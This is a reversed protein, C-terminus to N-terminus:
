RTRSERTGGLRRGLTRATAARLRRAVDPQFYYRARWEDRQEDIQDGYLIREAILEPDTLRDLPTPDSIPPTMTKPM